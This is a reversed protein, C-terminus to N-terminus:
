EWMARQPSIPPLTEGCFKMFKGEDEVYGLLRLVKTPARGRRRAAAAMGVTCLRSCLEELEAAYEEPDGAILLPKAHRMVGCSELGAAM